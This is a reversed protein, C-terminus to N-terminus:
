VAVRRTSSQKGLVGDVGADRGLVGRRMRQLQRRIKKDESGSELTSPVVGATKKAKASVNV